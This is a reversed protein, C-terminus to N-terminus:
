FNEIIGIKMPNFGNTSDSSEQNKVWDSLYEYLDASKTQYNNIFTSICYLSFFIIYTFMDVQNLSGSEEFLTFQGGKLVTKLQFYNPLTFLVAFLIGPMSLVVSSRLWRYVNFLIMIILLHSEM